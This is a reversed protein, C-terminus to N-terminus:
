IQVEKIKLEEHLTKLYRENADFKDELTQLKSKLDQFHTEFSDIMGNFSSLVRDIENTM